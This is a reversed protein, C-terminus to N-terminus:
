TWRSLWVAVLLTVIGLERQAHQLIHVCRRADRHCFTERVAQRRRRPHQLPERAVHRLDRGFNVGVRQHLRCRRRPSSRIIRGRCRESMLVAEASPFLRDRWTSRGARAFEVIEEEGRGGLLPPENQEIKVDDDGVRDCQVVNGGIRRDAFAQLKGREGAVTFSKGM